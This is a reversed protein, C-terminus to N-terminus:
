RNPDGQGKPRARTELAKYHALSDLVREIYAETEPYPPVGGHREVAGPGANYAALALNLSGFRDVMRRLYRAGSMINQREDFSDHVGLEAATGDMLQMLGKAGAPSVARPNGGSETRIVAAILASDVKTTEAAEDILHGYRSLISDGPSDDSRQQPQLQVPERADPQLKIPRSGPTELPLDHREIKIPPRDVPPKSLPRLQAPPGDPDHPSDITKVLSEYLVDAISGQGGTVMKQALHVDFMDMFTDKGLGSNM